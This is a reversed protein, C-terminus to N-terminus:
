GPSKGLMKARNTYPPAANTYDEDGKTRQTKAFGSDALKKKDAAETYNQVQELTKHGSFAMLEHATNGREARRRMGAKKLGHMRCGKPLGAETVWRAFDIGLSHKSPAKGHSNVVFTLHAKPM